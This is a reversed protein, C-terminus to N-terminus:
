IDIKGHKKDDQFYIKDVRALSTLGLLSGEQQSPPFFYDQFAEQGVSECM